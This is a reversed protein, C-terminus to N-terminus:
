KIIVNNYNINYSKNGNENIYYRGGRPGTHLELVEGSVIVYAKKFYNRSDYINNSQHSYNENSNNENSYNQDNSYNENSKNENSNNQDNSNNNNSNNSSLKKKFHSYAEYILKFKKDYKEKKDNDTTVDPHWKKAKKKYSKTIEEFTSKENVKLIKYYDEELDDEDSTNENDLINEFDYENTDMRKLIDKHYKFNTFFIKTNPSLHNSIILYSYEEFNKPEKLFIGDFIILTIKQKSLTTKLRRLSNLFTIPTSILINKTFDIENETKQEYKEIKILETFKKGKKKNISTKKSNDTNDTILIGKFKEKEEKSIRTIIKESDDGKTYNIKKKM